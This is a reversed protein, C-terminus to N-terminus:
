PVPTRSTRIRTMYTLTNPTHTTAAYFHSLCRYDIAKCDPDHCKQYCVGKRLDAIQVM